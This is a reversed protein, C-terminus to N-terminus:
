SGLQDLYRLTAEQGQLMQERYLGLGKLAGAIMVEGLTVDADIRFHQMEKKRKSDIRAILQTDGKYEPVLGLLHYKADMDDNLFRQLGEGVLHSTSVLALGAGTRLALHFEPSVRCFVQKQSPM